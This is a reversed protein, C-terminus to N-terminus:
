FLRNFIHEHSYLMKMLRLTYETGVQQWRVRMTGVILKNDFHIKTLKNLHISLDIDEHVKKDDLCINQKVKEWITKRLSMNPGYLCGNGFLFSLIDFLMLSPIHSVKISKPWKCYYTPGSLAGLEPDEFSKKIRSIWDKPLIADCDTRAIIEYKAAEFGANRAPIMGQKIEKIIRAGFKRAIEITRDTCNNDVVIIEDPKEKQDLVSQLCKGIYKEENYAPIVV